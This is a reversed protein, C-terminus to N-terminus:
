PTAPALDIEWQSPLFIELVAATADAFAARSEQTDRVGERNAEIQVGCIPGGALGGVGDAPAGCGHRRINYGGKFYPDSGPGPDSASPVAPFGEAAFLAGLSSEGRLVEAFSRDSEAALTNISSKERLATSASLTGDTANLEDRGLLYGLELRQIPHGHGHIDMYWGNGHSRAVASRARDLFGQFEHWAREASTNGCAAETIPRNADLKERHLLNIVVHPTGGLREVIAERMQLTLEQTNLDKVITASGGCRAATRDPIGVPELDGGHAASLIIPLDGPIYQVYGNEGFYSEGPVYATDPAETTYTPPPTIPAPSSSCGALTLILSLGFPGSGRINGRNM